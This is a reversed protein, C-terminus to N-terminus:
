QDALTMRPRPAAVPPPKPKPATVSKDILAARRERLEDDTIVGDDHLRQLEDLQSELPPAKRSGIETGLANGCIPCNRGVIQNPRPIKAGNVACKKTGHWVGAAM